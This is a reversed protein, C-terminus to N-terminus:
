KIHTQIKRYNKKEIQQLNDTQYILMTKFLGHIILFFINPCLYNRNIEIKINSKHLSMRNKFDKTGYKELEWALDIYKREKWKSETKGHSWSSRCLGGNPM